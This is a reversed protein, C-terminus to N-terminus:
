QTVRASDSVWLHWARGTLAELKMATRRGCARVGTFLNSMHGKSAGIADAASSVNFGYENMAAEFPTKPERKERLSEIDIHEYKLTAILTLLGPSPRFWEGNARDEEFAGHFSLERQRDGPVLRLLRIPEPTDTQMKALRSRPNTSIGIKINGAEGSQIFYVYSPRNNM